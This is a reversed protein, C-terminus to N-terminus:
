NDKDAGLPSKFRKAKALAVTQAVTETAAFPSEHEWFRPVTWGCNLLRSNTGADRLRIAEIKLRWFEANQKPWTPHQPCGLWFCRDVFIAIKLAPFAVDAVRRPKKSLEYDVRYRLGRRYLEKRLGTEADTGKQRVRAMRRSTAPPSPQIHLM